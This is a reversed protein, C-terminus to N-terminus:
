AKCSSFSNRLGEADELEEGILVIVSGREEGPEWCRDAKSHFTKRVAQFEYRYDSGAFYLYGKSRLIKLGRNEFLNRIWENVKEKDLPQKESLVISRIEDVNGDDGGERQNQVGAAGSLFPVESLLPLGNHLGNNLVQSLGIQCFRTRYLNALPNIKRIRRELGAMGAEDALDIKNLLIIDAFAIQERAIRYEDLNLHGYEADVVTIYSDLRYIDRIHHLFFLQVLFESSDLGSTEMLLCDFGAPANSSGAPNVDHCRSHLDSLLGYVILQPDQHMSVGALVHVRAKGAQVLKDDIPIAGYERIVVEMQSGHPQGLINNLLTTKGSGLFGGLITVPTKIGTTNICRGSLAHSSKSHEHHSM